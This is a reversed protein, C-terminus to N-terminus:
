FKPIKAEEIVQSWETIQSKILNDLQEPSSGTVALGQAALAERFKPMQLIEGIAQNYKDVIKKPMKAPALFGYWVDVSVPYGEEAMTPMDPKLEVRKDAFVALMRLKGDAALPLAIHTPFSMVPVHNGLVDIVAQAQGSYPVAVMDIKAARKLLEMSMFHPTALGPTAFSVKGPNAKAYAVFEKVNKAPFSPNVCLSWSARAVEIIARFDKIPDYPLSKSFAANLAYSTATFLITQGDPNSHAVMDTGIVGSAGTVNKIIVPQGWRKSLEEGVLRAMVDLGSGASFPVMFTIPQNSIGQASVANPSTACLFASAGIIVSLASRRAFTSLAKTM